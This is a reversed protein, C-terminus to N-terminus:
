NTLKEKWLEFDTDKMTSTCLVRLGQENKENGNEFDFLVM